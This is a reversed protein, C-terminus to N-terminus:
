GNVGGPQCPERKRPHQNGEGNQTRRITGGGGPGHCVEVKEIDDDGRDIDSQVGADDGSFPYVPKDELRQM